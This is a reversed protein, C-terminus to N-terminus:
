CAVRKQKRFAKDLGASTLTYSGRVHPTFLHRNNGLARYVTSKDRDLAKCINRVSDTYGPCIMLHRILHVTLSKNSPARESHLVGKIIALMDSFTREQLPFGEFNYLRVEHARAGSFPVEMIARTIKVALEHTTM